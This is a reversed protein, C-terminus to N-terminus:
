PWLPFYHNYPVRSETGKSHSYTWSLKIVVHVGKERRGKRWHGPTYASWIGNLVFLNQYSLSSSFSFCLFFFQVVKSFLHKTKRNAKLTSTTYTKFDAETKRTTSVPLVAWRLSNNSTLLVYLFFYIKRTHEQKLLCVCCDQPSATPLHIASGWWTGQEFRHYSQKGQVPEEKLKSEFLQSYHGM